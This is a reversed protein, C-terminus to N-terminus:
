CGAGKPSPADGQDCSPLPSILSREWTPCQACPMGLDQRPWRGAALHERPPRSCTFPPHVLTMLATECGPELPGCLWAGARGGASRSGRLLQMSLRPRPGPRRLGDKAGHHQANESPTGRHELWSRASGASGEALGRGRQVRTMEPDAQEKGLKASTYDALCLTLYQFPVDNSKICSGSLFSEETQTM